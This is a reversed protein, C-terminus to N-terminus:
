VAFGLAAGIALAGIALITFWGFSTLVKAKKARGFAPVTLAPWHIQGASVRDSNTLRYM